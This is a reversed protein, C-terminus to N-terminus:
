KNKTPKIPKLVTMMVPQLPKHFTLMRLWIVKTFLLVIREWLSLKWCPIVMGDKFKCLPLPLYEHQHEAYICNVEEFKIPKM